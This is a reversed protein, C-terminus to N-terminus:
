KRNCRDNEKEESKFMISFQKDSEKIAHYTNIFSSQLNGRWSKYNLLNEHYPMKRKLRKIKQRHRQLTSKVPTTRVAGTDSLYFHTKLFVFHRLKTIFVKKPNLTLKLPQIYEYIKQVASKWRCGATVNKYAELLRDVTLHSKIFENM